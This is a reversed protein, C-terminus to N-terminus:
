IFLAALPMVDYRIIVALWMVCGAEKTNQQLLRWPAKSQDTKKLFDAIKNTIKICKRTGSSMMFPTSPKFRTLSSSSNMPVTFSFSFTPKAWEHVLPGLASTDLRLLDGKCTKYTDNFSLHLWSCIKDLHLGARLSLYIFIYLTFHISYTKGPCFSYLIGM